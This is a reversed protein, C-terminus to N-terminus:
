RNKNVFTYRGAASHAHSPDFWASTPPPRAIDPALGSTPTPHSAEFSLTVREPTESRLSQQLVTIRELLEKVQAELLAIERRISASESM